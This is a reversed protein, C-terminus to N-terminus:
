EASCSMSLKSNESGKQLKQWISASPDKAADRVTWRQHDWLHQDSGSLFPHRNQGKRKVAAQDSAPWKIERLKLKRMQLILLNTTTVTIIVIWTVMVDNYPISSTPCISSYVVIRLYSGGKIFCIVIGVLM